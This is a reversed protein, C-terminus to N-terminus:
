EKMMQFSIIQSLQEGIDQDDNIIFLQVNSDDTKSDYHSYEVVWGSTARYLNLTIPRVEFNLVNHQHKQSGVGITAKFTSRIKGTSYSYNESISSENNSVDNLSQICKNKFWNDFWRM